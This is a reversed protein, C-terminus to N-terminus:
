PNHGPPATGAPNVNTQTKHNSDTNGSCSGGSTQGGGNTCIPSITASATKFLSSMVAFIMAAAVVAIALTKVTQM